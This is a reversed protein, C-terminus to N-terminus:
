NFQKLSQIGGNIDVTEIVKSLTALDRPAMARFKEEAAGLIL